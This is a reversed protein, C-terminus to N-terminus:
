LMIQSIVLLPFFLEGFGEMMHFAITITVRAELEELTEKVFPHELLAPWTLRSQPEQLWSKIALSDIIFCLSSIYM